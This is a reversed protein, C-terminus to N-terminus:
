FAQNEDPSVTVDLTATGGGVFHLTVPFNEGQALPHPLEALEIWMEAARFNLSEDAPLYLTELTTAKQDRSGFLFRAEAAMPTSVSLIQLDEDGDNQITLQLRATAGVVSASADTILLPGYRQALADHSVQLTFLALLVPLLAPILRRASRRSVAGIALPKFRSSTKSM